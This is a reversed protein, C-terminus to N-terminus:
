LAAPFCIEVCDRCLGWAQELDIPCVQIPVLLLYRLLGQESLSAM